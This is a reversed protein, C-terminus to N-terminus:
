DSKSRQPYIFELCRRIYIFGYFSSLLSRYVLTRCLSKKAPCNKRRIWGPIRHKEWIGDLGSNGRLPRIRHGCFAALRSSRCGPLCHRGTRQFVHGPSGSFFRAVRNGSGTRNVAVGYDLLRWTRSRPQPRNIDRDQGAQPVPNYFDVQLYLLRNFIGGAIRGGAM